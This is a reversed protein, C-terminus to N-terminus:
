KITQTSKWEEFERRGEESEFFARIEPLFTEALSEIVDKPVNCEGRRNKLLAKIRIRLRKWFGGYEYDYIDKWLPRLRKAIEKAFDPSCEKNAFSEIFDKDKEALYEQLGIKTYEKLLSKKM